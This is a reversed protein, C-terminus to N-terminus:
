LQETCALRSQVQEGAVGSWGLLRWDRSGSLWPRRPWARLNSEPRPLLSFSYWAISIIRVKIETAM